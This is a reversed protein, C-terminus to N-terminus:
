RGSSFRMPGCFAAAAAVRRSCPPTSRAADRHAPRVEHLAALCVHRSIRDCGHQRGVPAARRHEPHDGNQPYGNAGATGSGQPRRQSRGPGHYREPGQRPGELGPRPRQDLCRYARDGHPRVEGLSRRQGPLAPDRERHLHRGRDPCRCEPRGGPSEGRTSHSCGSTDM